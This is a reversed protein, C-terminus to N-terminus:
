PQRRGHPHPIPASCGRGEASPRVRAAVRAASGVEAGDPIRPDGAAPLLRSGRSGGSPCPGPCVGPVLGAGRPSGEAGRPWGHGPEGWSFASDQRPPFRGRRSVRPVDHCSGELKAANELTGLLGAPAPPATSPNPDDPGRWTMSLSFSPPPLPSVQARVGAEGKRHHGGWFAFSVAFRKGGWTTTRKTRPSASSARDLSCGGAASLFVPEGQFSDPGVRPAVGVRLYINEVGTEKTQAPNNQTRPSWCYFNAPHLVAAKGAPSFCASFFSNGWM